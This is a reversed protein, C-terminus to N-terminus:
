AQRKLTSCCLPVRIRLLRAFCPMLMRAFGILIAKSIMMVPLWWCNTKMIPGRRFDNEQSTNSIASVVNSGAASTQILRNGAAMAPFRVSVKLDYRDALEKLILNAAPTSSEGIAFRPHGHNDLLAVSRGTRGLIQALLSGSFGSGLVVVDVDHHM